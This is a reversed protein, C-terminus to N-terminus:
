WHTPENILRQIFSITGVPNVQKGQSRDDQSLNIPRHIYSGAKKPEFENELLAYDSSAVHASWEILYQLRIEQSQYVAFLSKGGGVFLDQQGAREVEDWNRFGQTDGVGCTIVFSAPGARWVRFWSPIQRATDIRKDGSIYLAPTMLNDYKQPDAKAVYPMFMEPGTTAIPNVSVRPSVAYPPRMMVYMPCRKAPRESDPVILDVWKDWAGATEVGLKNGSEDLPGPKGTRVDIWGFAERRVTLLGGSPPKPSWGLRSSEMVFNCAAVMMIHAQAEHVTNLSEQVDSRMRVLFTLAMAALLASIGAVIILITGRRCTNTKNMPVGNM